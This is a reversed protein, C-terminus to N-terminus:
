LVLNLGIDLESYQECGALWNTYLKQSIVFIRLNALAIKIEQPNELSIVGYKFVALVPDGSKVFHKTEQQDM